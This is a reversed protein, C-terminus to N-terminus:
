CAKKQSFPVIYVKLSEEVYLRYVVGPRLWHWGKKSGLILTSRRFDVERNTPQVTPPCSTRHTATVVLGRFLVTFSFLTESRRRTANNPRQLYFQVKLFFFFKLFMYPHSRRDCVFLFIFVLFFFQISFFMTLFVFLTHSDTFQIVRDRRKSRENYREGTRKRERDRKKMSLRGGMGGSFFLPPFLFLGPFLDLLSIKYVFYFYFLVWFHWLRQDVQTTWENNVDWRKRVSPQSNAHKNTKEQFSILSCDTFHICMFVPVNQSSM